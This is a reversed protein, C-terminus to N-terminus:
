QANKIYHYKFIKANSIKGETSIFLNAQPDFCIGEPQPIQKPNLFIIHKLDLKKDYILLSSGRASLIYTHQTKPHIAIGSPAFVQTRKKLKKLLKKSIETYEKDLLTALEKHKITLFAKKNLKFEKLDFSYITKKNDNNSKLSAGKCALLLHNKIPDYCLGEIDNTHSLKTKINETTNNKLNFFFLDGNSKTIVVDNNVVEIGEYDGKHSFKYHNAISGTQQNIEYIVGKEDNNAILLKKKPDFSLGSIEKLSAPLLIKQPTYFDYDTSRININNLVEKNLTNQNQSTSNRCSTCFIGIFFINLIPNM